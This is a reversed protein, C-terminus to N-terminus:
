ARGAPEAAPKAAELDALRKRLEVQEQFRATVDRIVAAPGYLSGDAGKILSITFEISIRAGDKRVAPVALLDGAGYRTTGGAMAAHYGDWHRQRLREPVILDLTEGIAEDAGYGFMREAGPNWLRIRGEVDAVIVADPMSEVVRESLWGSNEDAM